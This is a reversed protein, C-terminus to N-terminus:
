ACELVLLCGSSINRVTDQHFRSQGAPAPLASPLRALGFIAASRDHTDSHVTSPPLLSRNGAVFDLIAHGEHAGCVPFRSFLVIDTDPVSSNPRARSWRAHPM